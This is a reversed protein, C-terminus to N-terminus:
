KLHKFYDVTRHILHPSCLIWVKVLTWSTESGSCPHRPSGSFPQPFYRGKSQLVGSGTIPFTELRTSTTTISIWHQYKHKVKVQKATQWLQISELWDCLFAFWGWASESGQRKSKKASPWSTQSRGSCPSSPWSFPLHPLFVFHRLYTLWTLLCLPKLNNRLNLCQFGWSQYKRGTLCARQPQVTM